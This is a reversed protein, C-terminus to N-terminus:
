AAVRSESRRRKTGGSGGFWRPIPWTAAGIDRREFALAAGAVFLLTFGLLLGSEMWQTGRLLVAVYDAWGFPTLDAVFAASELLTALINAFYALVIGATVTAAAAARSPLAASALMSMALFFWVLLIMLITGELMRLYGLDFEAILLRGLVIGAFWTASIIVIFLGLAVAKWLIMARRTLPEAMLLELTGNSEEGAVAATGAIVAVAILLLPMWSFFEAALFGPPTGISAEGIFIEFFEPFEIGEYAEAVQPFLAIMGVATLFGAISMGMTVGRQDRLTKRVLARGSM